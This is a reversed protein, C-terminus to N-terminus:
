YNPYIFAALRPFLTEVLLRWPGHVNVDPFAACVEEVSRHGFLLPVLAMPPLNFDYPGSTVKEVEVLKGTDFRLRLGGRYLGMRVDRTWRCFVSEALRADLAPALARILEALDPIHLQWAYTGQDAAGLARAVRVLDSSAPLNLRIFPQGAAQARRRLHTLLALAADYTFRSAEDVVLEAGFHFEPLRVYGELEGAANVVVWTQHSGADPTTYPAMLYHWIDPSRRAYLDLPTVAAAHLDALAPIDARTARRITYTPDIQAPLQHFELRWGGELPLAYDYGFQRYFYPIGQIISLVCRRAALRQKFPAVQARILGQGRVEQATGVVGMEGVQLTVPGVQWEWPVLCLCSVVQGNADEVFFQDAPELGPYDNLLHRMFVGVAPEFVTSVLQTVRDVDAPTTLTKVTFGGEVPLSLPASNVAFM